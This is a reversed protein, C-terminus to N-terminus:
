FSVTICEKAIAKLKNVQLLTIKGKKIDNELQMYDNTVIDRLTLWENYNLSKAQIHLFKNISEIDEILQKERREQEAVEEKFMAHILNEKFKTEKEMRELSERKEIRMQFKHQSKYKRLMTSYTPM